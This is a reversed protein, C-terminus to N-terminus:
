RSTDALLAPSSGALRDGFLVQLPKSLMKRLNREGSRVFFAAWAVLDQFRPALMNIVIDAQQIQVSRVETDNVDLRIGAGRAHGAVRQQALDPDIDGVTVFWDHQEAFQLLRHILFPTSQGAGLVLIQRM